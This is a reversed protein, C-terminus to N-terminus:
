QKGLKVLLDGAFASLTDDRAGMIVIRDGPRALELLKDGCADRTAFAFASPGKARIGGAIDGSSVSKDTTGGYYVPEPMVLVDDKNLHLAFVEIFEAQM